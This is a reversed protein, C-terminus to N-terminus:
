VEIVAKERREAVPKASDELMAQLNKESDSIALFGSSPAAEAEAASPAADELSLPKNEENLAAQIVLGWAKLVATSTGSIVVSDYEERKDEELAIVSDSSQMIRKMAAGSFRSLGGKAVKIEVSDKISSRRKRHPVRSLCKSRIEHAASDVQEATGTITVTSPEEWDEIRDIGAGSSPQLDQIEKVLSKPV